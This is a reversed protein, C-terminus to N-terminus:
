GDRLEALDATTNINITSEEIEPHEKVPIGQVQNFSEILDILSTREGIIPMSQHIADRSYWSLLPEYHTGTRPVVADVHRNSVEFVVRLSEPSICPMDAATLILGPTQARHAAAILGALPGTYRDDDHVFQVDEPSTLAGRLQGEQQDGQVAIIPDLEFVRQHSRVVHQILPTGDLCALTKNGNEFRTSYGGALIVGTGDSIQEAM